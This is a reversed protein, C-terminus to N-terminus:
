RNRGAKIKDNRKAARQMKRFQRPSVQCIAKFCRNFQALSGFGSLHAVESISNGSNQLLERARSVRYLNIYHVFGVGSEKKFFRCFHNRSMHFHKAACQLSIKKSFNKKIYQKVLSIKESKNVQEMFLFQHHTELVLRGVTCLYQKVGEVQTSGLVKSNLYHELLPAADLRHQAALAVVEADSLRSEGEVFFQGSSLCGIYDGNDGFLPLFLESLGAHCTYLLAERRVKAKQAHLRDCALCAAFGSDSNCLMACYPNFDALSSLRLTDGASNTFDLVIGLLKHLMDRYEILRQEKGLELFVKRNILEIDM